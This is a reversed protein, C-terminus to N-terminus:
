THIQPRPRQYKELFTSAPQQNIETPRDGIDIGAEIALGNPDLDSVLWETNVRIISLGIYPKGVAYIFYFLSIVHM